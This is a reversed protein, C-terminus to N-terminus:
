RSLRQLGSANGPLLFDHQPTKRLIVPEHVNFGAVIDRYIVREFISEEFYKRLVANDDEEIM